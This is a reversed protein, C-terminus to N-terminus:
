VAYLTPDTNRETMTRNRRIPPAPRTGHEVEIRSIGPWFASTHEACRRHGVGQYGPKPAFVPAVDTGGCAPRRRRCWSQWEPGTLCLWRESGDGAGPRGRGRFRGHPREGIIVGG